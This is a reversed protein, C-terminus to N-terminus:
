RTPSANLVATQENSFPVPRALGGLRPRGTEYFSDPGPEPAVNPAGLRTPAEGLETSM